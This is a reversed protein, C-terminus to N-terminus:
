EAEVPIFEFKSVDFLGKDTMKIEPIVPLAMFCLTMLPEVDPNVKLDEHAIRHIEVLKSDVWGATQDSMIGGVPLPMRVLIRKQDVLVVGGQQEALANVAFAINENDIGAAIINHSDHNVTLAVAGKKIGYGKLLGVSLFGTNNHREAVVLKCIDREPNFIFDGEPDLEVTEIAKGTVIGGPIVRIVNVRPSKLNMKLRKVSFDKINVSGAVPTIDNRKVEPLYRGGEAVLRGEIFVAKVSFDTLDDVLVIDARRGPAIAGRDWLRYCEAANITAMQIATVPDLGEKVCLKLHGDIHGEEFVTKPQRDDSCLVCRRSNVPTIGKILKKLDHCASGQRIQVYMGNNIREEMEELTSCEHDTGIGAMAYANLAKGSVGPCHGDILKGANQAVLLKEVETENGSIVGNFNMFEGLGLIRKDCIPERMDAADVVAGSHEYPTSPVCSPLMFKIDLVTNESADLMYNLGRIGAVNVIEHPDAIITTTGHPVLLRGIEEPTVFSSEIHMHSEILGPLVHCGGADIVQEGEYDGLGAIVGDCVAVSTEQVKGSFVNVIKGNKIVVDAKKRGASVALREELKEKEVLVGEKGAGYNDEWYEKPIFNQAKNNTDLWIEMVATM